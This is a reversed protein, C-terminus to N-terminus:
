LHFAVEVAIKVSVPQGDKLSPLFKWQEVAAVAKEDLGSGIPMVVQIDKPSGSRDVVLNLVCIGQVKAAKAEESYEPDPTFQAKPPSVGGGVRKEVGAVTAHTTVPLPIGAGGETIGIVAALRPSFRCGETPKKESGNIATTVCSQWYNVVSDRFAVGDSVFMKAFAAAIEEQTPHSSDFDLDIELKADKRRNRYDLGERSEEVVLRKSQLRLTTGNIELREIRIFGDLTWAGPDANGKLQGSADFKLVGGPWFNRIAFVKGEYSQKLQLELEDAFSPLACAFLVLALSVAISIRLQISPM